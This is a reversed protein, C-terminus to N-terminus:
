LQQMEFPGLLWRPPPSYNIQKKGETKQENFLGHRWSLSNKPGFPVQFGFQFHLKKFWINWSKDVYPGKLRITLKLYIQSHHHDLPQCLRNHFSFDQTWIRNGGSKKALFIQESFPCECFSELNSVNSLDRPRQYWVKALFVCIVWILLNSIKLTIWLIEGDRSSQQLRFSFQQTKFAFLKKVLQRPVFNIEWSSQTKCFFCLQSSTM